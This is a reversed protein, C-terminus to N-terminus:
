GAASPPTEPLPLAKALLRILRWAGRVKDAPWGGMMTELFARIMNASPEPPPAKRFPALLERAIEPTLLNRVALRAAERSIPTYRPAHRIPQEFTGGGGKGKKRARRRAKMNIIDATM